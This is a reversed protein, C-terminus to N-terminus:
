YHLMITSKSDVFCNEINKAKNMWNFQKELIEQDKIKKM